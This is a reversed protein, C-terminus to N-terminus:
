KAFITLKKMERGLGQENLVIRNYAYNDASFEFHKFLHVLVTGVVREDKLSIPKEPLNKGRQTMIVLIEVIVDEVGRYYNVGITFFVNYPELAKQLDQEFFDFSGYTEQERHCKEKFTLMDIASSIRKTIIFEIEHDGFKKVSLVNNM